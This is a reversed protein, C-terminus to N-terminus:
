SSCNGNDVISVSVCNGATCSIATFCGSFGGTNSVPLAYTQGGCDTVTIGAGVGSSSSVSYFKSGPCPSDFGQDTWTMTGTGGVKTPAGSQSYVTTTAGFASTTRFSAGLGNCATYNYIVGNGLTNVVGTFRKCFPTKSPTPSPTLTATPSTVPTGTQSPTNTPTGTPQATVSPTPTNTNTPTNTPTSTPQATVSPTPTNSPTVSPTVPVGSTEEPVAGGLSSNVGVNPVKFSDWRPLRRKNPFM